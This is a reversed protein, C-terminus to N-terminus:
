PVTVIRVREIETGKGANAKLSVRYKGPKTYVHIPEAVPAEDGDGFAWRIESPEVSCKLKFRVELPNMGSTPLVEILAWPEGRIVDEFFEVTRHGDTKRVQMSSDKHVTAGGTRLWDVCKSSRNGKIADDISFFVAVPQYSDIVPRVRSLSEEEVKPEAIAIARFVDPHLLGTYLAAKAGASWGYIFVRDRSVTHGAQIHRVTALIHEEDQSLRASDKTADKSWSREVSKIDVAAVLFGRSEAFEAWALIQRNPSDPFSTHCVVILPWAKTRDYVSPKYFEYPRSLVPDARKLIPEPMNSESFTECGSLMAAALCLMVAIQNRCHVQGNATVRLGFSTEQLNEDIEVM